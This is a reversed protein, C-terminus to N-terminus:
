REITNEMWHIGNKKKTEQYSTANVVNPNIIALVPYSSDSKSVFVIQVPRGNITIVKKGSLALELNFDKAPM